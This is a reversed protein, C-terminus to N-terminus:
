QMNNSDFNLFKGYITTKDNIGCKKQFLRGIGITFAIRLFYNVDWFVYALAIVTAIICYMKFLFRFIIFVSKASQLDLSYQQDYTVLKFRCLLAQFELKRLKYFMITYFKDDKDTTFYHPKTLCLRLIHNYAACVCSASPLTTSWLHRNWLTHLSTRQPSYSCGYIYSENENFVRLFKWVFSM